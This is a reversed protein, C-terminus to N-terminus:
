ETDTSHIGSASERSTSRKKRSAMLYRAIDEVFNETDEDARKKVSEVYLDAAEQAKEFIETLGLAAEAINGYSDMSIQRLKLQKKLKENEIHLSKADEQLAYIIEILQIRSMKKLDRNESERKQPQPPKVPVQRKPKPAPAPDDYDAAWDDTNRPKYDYGDNESYAM